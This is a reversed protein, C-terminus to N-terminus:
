DHFYNKIEPNIYLVTSMVIFIIINIVMATNKNDNSMYYIISELLSWIAFLYIIEFHYFTFHNKKSDPM